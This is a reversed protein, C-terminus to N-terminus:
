DLTGRAIPPEHTFKDVENVVYNESVLGIGILGIEIIPIILYIGLFGKFILLILACIAVTIVLDILGILYIIGIHKIHVVKKFPVKKRAYFVYGEFMCLFPLALIVIIALAIDLGKVLSGLLILLAIVAVWFLTDLFSYLLLKGVKVRTLEKRLLLKMLFIGLVFGLFIMLFFLMIAIVIGTIATTVLTEVQEMTLSEGFMVNAVHKLTSGIWESSTFTKVIESLSRNYDVKMVEGLLANWMGEWDIEVHKAMEAADTIFTKVSTIIGNMMSSFGIIAFISLIGFPVLYYKLCRLFDKVGKTLM